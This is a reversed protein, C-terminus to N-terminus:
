NCAETGTCNPPLVRGGNIRIVGTVRQGNDKLVGGHQEIWGDAMAQKPVPKEYASLSSKFEFGIWEDSGPKGVYFDYERGKVYYPNRVSGSTKVTLGVSRLLGVISDVSLDHLIGYGRGMPGVSGALRYGASSGAVSTVLLVSAAAKQKLTSVDSLWIDAVLAGSEHVGYLGMAIGLPPAFFTAVGAGAGVIGGIMIDEVYTAKGLAQNALYTSAAGLSAGIGASFAVGTEMTTMRGSRDTAQIPNNSAYSYRNLSRPNSLVGEFPDASVFRGIRPDYWRARLYLLQSDQDWYEGTYLHSQKLGTSADLQGFADGQNQEVVNGNADVAGLSTNLHGRLPFLDNAADASAFLTGAGGRTQRILQTGWVYATSETSPAASSTIRTELAVQPYAHSSDVLYSTASTEGPSTASKFTKRVRNGNADYAYSVSPSAAQAAAQTAGARIDILRNQPDFRYLTAKGAEIKASLNGNGDWTYTTTRTGGAALTVQEQTLRDATDYTYTTTETGAIGTATRTSRNGVADYTYRTDVSLAPTQADVRNERTLRANADFEFSQTQAPTGSFTGTGADFSAPTAGFEARYLEIRNMAGGADRTLAQGVVLTQTTGTQKVHAIAVVRDAADYRQHTRLVQAQGGVTNLDRETLVPRGAADYSYRTAKGDPATVTTLRGAADYASSATGADSTANSVSREVANGNADLTYNLQGLPSTSQILRDNADYRYSQTGSLTSAGQEQQSAVQGSPTYAYIVSGQPVTSNTGAGAPVVMGILQGQADYQYAFQEGAFSTHSIRKGELDFSNRETSGDAIKRSTIRGGADMSWTTVRGLADTQTTKAGTEDYAYGTTATSGASLSQTVSTLRGAADYGYTTMLGRPDTESQKRNDPRYVTSHSSGDPYQTLTLRNLADYTFSTTRGGATTSTRNGNEDFTQTTRVGTADVAATQRGAADYEMSSRQGKRDTMATVKGAADYTTTETTGDPYTTKVLRNLADYDMRTIRGARDTKAIENGQADYTTSETTGDPYSTSTLRANADYTYTTKQGLANTQSALKGASNYVMTRTAGLPDTEAVMRNEADFTNTTTLSQQVGGTTKTVTRSTQNGNADFTYRITHGLANTEVTRRGLADYGYTNVEGAIALGLLNGSTKDINITTSRGLPEAITSPTAGPQQDEGSRYGYATTNGRADTISSPNLRQWPFGSNGYTIRTTHGLPNTESTQKGNADFTRTITQGLANTTSLENGNADYTYRTTQGLPNVVQTINGDADFTYVSRNGRRDTITQTNSAVDFQQTSAQGLADASATLRGYEDFQNAM